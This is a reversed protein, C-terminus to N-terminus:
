LRGIDLETAHIETLSVLKNKKPKSPLLWVRVNLTVGSSNGTILRKAAKSCDLRLIYLSGLKREYYRSAFTDTVQLSDEPTLGYIHGQYEVAVYKYLWSIRSLHVAVTRKDDDFPIGSKTSKGNERETYVSLHAPFSSKRQLGGRTALPKSLKQHQYLNVSYSVAFLLLWCCLGVCRIKM